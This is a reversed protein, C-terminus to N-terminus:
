NLKQEFDVMFENLASVADLSVANYISARIGGVHRHGKLGCLGKQEAEQLFKLTLSKSPLYFVVNQTSREEPLVSNTYLSSNDITKYLLSAKEENTKAMEGVGGQTRLWNLVLASMYINFVPPTALLSKASIHARYDCMRIDVKKQKELFEDKIIVLSLGAPGLNKQLGSFVLAYDSINIEKAFLCSTMDVVCPIDVHKPKERRIGTLTENPTFFFYDYSDLSKPLNPEGVVHGLMSADQFAMESWFGSLWYFAKSVLFNQAVMAFHFRSPFGLILVRYDDPIALLARLDSEFRYMLELYADSRHSLEMVSMGLGQWDLMESQAQELVSLPIAAPGASFNFTRAM